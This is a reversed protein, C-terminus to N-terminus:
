EQVEAEKDTKDATFDDKKLVSLIRNHQDENSVQKHEFGRTRYVDVEGKSNGTMVVPSMKSFNPTFRVVTKPTHDDNGDADKDFHTVEPNLYNTYLDWIELRGDDSVSAFVTSTDPSWMVDNVQDKLPQVTVQHCTLQEESENAHWVKVTWDYSCSIFVPCDQPHWFPNCRVRYIPGM